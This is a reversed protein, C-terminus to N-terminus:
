FLEPNNKYFYLPSPIELIQLIIKRFFIGHFLNVAGTRHVLDVAGVCPDVLYM